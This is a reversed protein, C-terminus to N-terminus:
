AVMVMRLTTIPTHFQLVIAPVIGAIVVIGETGVLM